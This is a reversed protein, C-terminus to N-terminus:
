RDKGAEEDVKEWEDETSMEGALSRRKRMTDAPPVALPQVEKIAEKGGEQGGKAATEGETESGEVPSVQREKGKRLSRLREAEDEKQKAAALEAVFWNIAWWLGGCLTSLIFFHISYTAIFLVALVFQLCAFSVNTAVLLTPTPGPTFISNFLDTLFASM